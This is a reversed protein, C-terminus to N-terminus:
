GGSPAQGKLVMVAHGSGLPRPQPCDQGPGGVPPQEGGLGDGAPAVGEVGTTSTNRTVPEPRPTVPATMASIAGTKSSAGTAPATISRNGRTRTMTAASRHRM